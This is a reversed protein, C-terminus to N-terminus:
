YLGLMWMDGNVSFYCKRIIDAGILAQNIGANVIGCVEMAPSGQVFEYYDKDVIMPTPIDYVFASAPNYAIGQVITQSKSAYGANRLFNDPFLTKTAGTDIFGPITAVGGTNTRVAVIIPIRYNGSNDINVVRGTIVTRFLTQNNDVPQIRAGNQEQLVNGGAEAVQQGRNDSAVVTYKLGEDWPFTYNLEPLLRGRVDYPNLAWSSIVRGGKEINVVYCVAGPVAQWRLTVNGKTISQWVKINGTSYYQISAGVNGRTQGQQESGIQNQSQQKYSDQSIMQSSTNQQQSQSQQKARREQQVRAVIADVQQRHVQERHWWWGAGLLLGILIFMVGFVSVAASAVLRREKTKKVSADMVTAGETTEQNLLHIVKKRTEPDLDDLRIGM